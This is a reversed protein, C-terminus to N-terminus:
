EWMMQKRLVRQKFSQPSFGGGEADRGPSNLNEPMGWTWIGLPGLSPRHRGERLDGPRCFRREEEQEQKEEPSAGTRTGARKMAPCARNHINHIVPALPKSCTCHELECPTSCPMSIGSDRPERPNATTAATTTTTSSSNNAYASAPTPEARPGSPLSTNGRPSALMFLPETHPQGSYRVSRTQSHRRSGPTPEVSSRQVTLLLTNRRSRRIPRQISHQQGSAERNLRLAGEGRSLRDLCQRMINARHTEYVLELQCALFRCYDNDVTSPLLLRLKDRLSSKLAEQNEDFM